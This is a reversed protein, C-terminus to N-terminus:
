LKAIEGYSEREQKRLAEVQSACVQSRGLKSPQMFQAQKESRELNCM